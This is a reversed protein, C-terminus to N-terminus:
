IGSPYNKLYGSYSNSVYNFRAGGFVSLYENIKYTAGLQLGFIYQKGEMFSNVSYQNTGTYPNTPALGGEAMGRGAEVLM